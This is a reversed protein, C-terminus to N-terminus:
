RRLLAVAALVLQVTVLVLGAVVTSSPGHAMGDHGGGVVMPAHVALMGADVLATLAWVQGSPALWLHWACPLCALAMVAMAVASLEGSAALLLHVGASGVALVAAARGLAVARTSGTLPLTATV